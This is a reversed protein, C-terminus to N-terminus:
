HTRKSKSKKNRKSKSKKNRKSKSKTANSQIKNRKSKSKKNRKSKSKKNRKSKSTTKPTTKTNKNKPKKALRDLLNQITQENRDNNGDGKGYYVVKGNELYFITPFTAVDDINIGNSGIISKYLKNNNFNQIDTELTNRNMEVFDVHKNAPNSKVLKWTKNFEICYPCENFNM